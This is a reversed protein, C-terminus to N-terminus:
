NPTQFLNNRMNVITGAVASVSSGSKTQLKVLNWIMAIEEEKIKLLHTEITNEKIPTTKRTTM